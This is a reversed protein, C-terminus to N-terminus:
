ARAARRRAWCAAWASPWARTCARAAANRVVSDEDFCVLASALQQQGILAVFGPFIPRPQLDDDLTQAVVLKLKGRSRLLPLMLERDIGPVVAEFSKAPLVIDLGVVAPQAVVMADVLAGLRKHWLAFPEDFSRFSEEDAAIVVVDNAVPQHTMKRLLKLSQDYLKWEAYQFGPWSQLALAALLVCAYGLAGVKPGGAILWLQLQKIRTHIWQM